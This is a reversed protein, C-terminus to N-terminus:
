CMMKVDSSLMLKGDILQFMVSRKYASEDLHWYYHWGFDALINLFKLNLLLVESPLEVILGGDSFLMLSM